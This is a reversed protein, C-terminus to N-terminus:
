VTLPVFYLVILTLIKNIQESTVTYEKKKFTPIQYIEAGSEQLKKSQAKKNTAAAFLVKKGHLPKREKLSIQNRLTVVDGVITM